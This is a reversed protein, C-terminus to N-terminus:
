LLNMVANCVPLCSDPNIVTSHASVAEFILRSNLKVILQYIDCKGPFVLMILSVTNTDKWRKGCQFMITTIRLSLRPALDSRLSSTEKIRAIVASFESDPGLWLTKIPQNYIVYGASAEQVCM